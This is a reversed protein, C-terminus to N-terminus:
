NKRSGPRASAPPYIIRVRSDIHLQRAANDAFMGVGSIHSTGLTMDVPASTRIQDDDPLVTLAPTKLTLPQVERSGARAIDVNGSLHIQSNGHDIRAREAHMTMLPQDTGVSQVVPGDIDSSDDVPRHTLRAGSIIYRPQGTPSMRVFSFQDVIYDPENRRADARVDSAGRDIVQLLYFSGLAFLLGVGITAALRARHATRKHM